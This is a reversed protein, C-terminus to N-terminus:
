KSSEAIFYMYGQWSEYSADNAEGYKRCEAELAYVDPCNLYGSDHLCRVAQRFWVLCNFPIGAEEPPTVM